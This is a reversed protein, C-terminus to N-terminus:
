EGVSEGALFAAVATNFAQPHEIYPLHGCKEMILLRANPMRKRGEVHLQWKARIDERGTLILTRAELKELRTYVRHEASACTAILGAITAKYADFRDPSAYSTLQELLIEEPVARPDHCLVGLRRRCSELTPDGLAQSANAAASRLTREQEEAPHFVAGTGILILHEVRDPRAFWMLAAILGGYSSGGISYREVGLADALLGLHRVTAPQPPGGNFDVADTFGHGLMDPAYVTYRKGLEDINRLFTSGGVGVGHLLFLAPGAGAYLV